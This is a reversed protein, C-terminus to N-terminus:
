MDQATKTKAMVMLRHRTLSARYLYVDGDASGDRPVGSLRM